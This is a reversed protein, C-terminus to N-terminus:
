NEGGHIGTISNVCSKMEEDSNFEAGSQIINEQVSKPLSDFYEKIKTNNMWSPQRAM